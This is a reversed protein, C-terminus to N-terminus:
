GGRGESSSLRAACRAARRRVIPDPERTALSNVRAAVRRVVLREVVWLASRRHEPRDDCLMSELHDFAADDGRGTLRARIANARSRAHDDHLARAVAAAVPDRRAIAELANARVRPDRHALAAAVGARAPATWLAGLAQVATAAVRGDDSAGANLLDPELRHLVRLRRALHIAEICAPAPARAIRGRLDALALDPSEALRRRIELLREWRRAPSPTALRRVAHHPSRRLSRVAARAPEDTRELLALTASRAVALDADFAFDLLAGSRRSRRALTTAGLLRIRVDPDLVADESALQSAGPSLSWLWRLRGARVGVPTTADVPTERVIAGAKEHRDFAARRDPALLLHAAEIARAIRAPGTAEDLAAFAGPAAGPLGAWAIARALARSDRSRRIASRLRLLTAEDADRVWARIRASWFPGLRELCALAERDPREAARILSEALADQQHSRLSSAHDALSELTELAHRAVVPDRDAALAGAARIAEPLPTHRGLRAADSRAFRDTPHAALRGLADVLRGRASGIVRRRESAPVSAWRRLVLEMAREPTPGSRGIAGLRAFPGLEPTTARRLLRTLDAAAGGPMGGARDGADAEGTHTDRSTGSHEM